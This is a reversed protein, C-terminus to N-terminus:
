PMAISGLASITTVEPAVSAIVAPGAFPLLARVGRSRGEM